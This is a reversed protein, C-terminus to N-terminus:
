SRLESKFEQPTQKMIKKFLKHFVAQDNFGLEHAVEKATKDTYILLRKAELIIREHIFRLPTKQHYKAFLNSLTKPSKHLLEAYDSVQHKDKFHMDVLVNFKRVTDIQTENLKNTVLQSKALRTTKIILRKLLMRLMEGQINDRTNFEDLFVHYLLDFKQTEDEDLNVLPAEHTGFFIIGNCSVERDHDQICYFERNFSFATLSPQDKNVLVRQLFTSTTIQGPHLSYPMTDISIEIAMDTRNWLIHILNDHRSNIEHQNASYDDTLSFFAGTDSRNFSYIM